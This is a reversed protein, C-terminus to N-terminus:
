DYRYKWESISPSVRESRKGWFDLLNSVNKTYHGYKTYKSYLASSIVQQDTLGRSEVGM